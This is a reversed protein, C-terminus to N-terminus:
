PSQYLSRCKIRNEILLPNQMDTKTMLAGELVGMSLFSSTPTNTPMNTQKPITIPERM